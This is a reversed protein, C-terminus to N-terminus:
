RGGIAPAGGGGGGFMSAMMDMLPNGQRAPKLGLHIEGLAATADKVEPARLWPVQKEYRALLSQWVKTGQGRQTRWEGGVKVKEVSEGVGAQAARLALQLFNLSALKTVVLEDGPPPAAPSTALPSSPPPFPFAAVRLTPYAALALALFHSLFTRAALIFSSELYSLTGRAAYRGVAAEKEPDLKSWDFLVNALTQAADQTPCVLLHLSAVHYDQEKYLTEGLYQHIEVDGAPGSGTKATWSFIADTLTKRWAGAPGTLAILQIVKAREDKGCGVERAAWVDDVLMVGLDVGSGVQGKELLRRAADWLLEAAEQAKKDYPLVSGAPPPNRRPPALLRTATTRAKQHASYFDGSDLHELVQQLAASM